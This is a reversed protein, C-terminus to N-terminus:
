LVEVDFVILEGNLELADFFEDITCGIDIRKYSNDHYRLIWVEFLKSDSLDYISYLKNNDDFIFQIFLRYNSTEGWVYYTKLITM